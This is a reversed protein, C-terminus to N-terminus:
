LEFSLEKIRRQPDKVEDPYGLSVNRLSTDGIAVDRADHSHGFLWLDPGFETIVQTLDSAYAAELGESYSRLVDGHPAHHTAVITKGAFPQALEQRLWAVHNRHTSVTDSPWIKRYGRSAMRIKRYDNMRESINAQNILSGAGLEMDTWLTACLVRWEGFRLVKKQAYTVGFSAAIEALQAEGDLCFDYFDHNGPFVSVRDLPILKALREFAYKWRTKPKNSVDGALLIHDIESFVTELGAFPDRKQLAWFDDHLDSLVLIRM